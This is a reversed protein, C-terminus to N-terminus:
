AGAGAQVSTVIVPTARATLRRGRLYPLDSRLTGERYWIASYERRLRFAVESDGPARRDGLDADGPRQGQDAPKSHHM